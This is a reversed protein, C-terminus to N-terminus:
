AIPSRIAPVASLCRKVSTLGSSSQKALPRTATKRATFPDSVDYRRINFRTDTIECEYQFSDISQQRERWAALIQPVSPDTARPGIPDGRCVINAVGVVYLALARNSFPDEQSTSHDQRWRDFFTCGDNSECAKSFTLRGPFNARTTRIISHPRRPLGTCVREVALGYKNLRGFFAPPIRCRRM